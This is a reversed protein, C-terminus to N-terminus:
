HSLQCKTERHSSPCRARVVKRGKTRLWALGLLGAARADRTEALAPELATGPLAVVAERQCRLGRFCSGPIEGSSACLALNRNSGIESEWTKKVVRPFM